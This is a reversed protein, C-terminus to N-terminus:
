LYWLCEYINKLSIPTTNLLKAIKYVPVGCQMTDLLMAHIVMSVCHIVMFKGNNHVIDMLITTIWIMIIMIIMIIM